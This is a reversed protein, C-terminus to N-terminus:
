GETRPTAARADEDPAPVEIPALPHVAPGELVKGDVDFRSGHCPCDWSAEAPNFRVECGLHTCTPSVAHLHGEGDRYAAARKGDALRVVGGDGSALSEANGGGRNAVRDRVFRWGVSANEKVLAGASARIHLRSPDFLDATPGERGLLLDAVVHACATGNTFGWKRLGTIVFLRSSRPHLPGAYPLGDPATSDQASWRYAARPEVEFHERTWEWLARYRRGSDPDKGAEHGEGGAILLTGGDDLPATRLSRSPTDIAFLMDEPVEGAVRAAVCYSREASLRAFYLGRDLIPFHTAIVVRDARVEGRETEIRCPSGTRVGTVRTSEHLRAGADRALDALALVYRRAHVDAQGTVHVAGATDFPLPARPAFRAPLGAEISAAAEAEIEEARDPDTTYTWADRDRWDCELSEGAVLDRMWSLANENAVGYARAVDPGIRSALPAYCSGHASSVKATTCGTVGSGIASAELVVVDIGARALLLATTVGAIGGGVVAVEASTGEAAPPHSTGGPTTALWYSGEASTTEDSHM